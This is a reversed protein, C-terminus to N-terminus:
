EKREILYCAEEENSEIEVVVNPFTKCLVQEIKKACEANTDVILINM